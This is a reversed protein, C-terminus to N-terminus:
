IDWELTEPNFCFRTMPIGPDFGMQQGYCEHYTYIYIYICYIRTHTHTEMINWDMNILILTELLKTIKFGM